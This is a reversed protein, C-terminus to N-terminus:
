GNEDPHTHVQTGKVRWELRGLVETMERRRYGFGPERRDETLRPL